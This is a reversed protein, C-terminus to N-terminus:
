GIYDQLALVASPNAQSNRARMAKVLAFAGSLTTTYPIKLRLATQRLSRSDHSAKAGEVTNIVLAVENSRMADVIHPSGQYVKNVRAVQLGAQTLAEATGDTALLTFFLPVLDRGLEGLQSKDHDRISIFVQGSQPLQNGAARQAKYFASGFDRALGMVEGTSRMEPGLLVDVGPFRDFPFVAEKVAVHNLEPAAMAKGTESKFADPLTEGAMVRAAIRAVAIGTAKAVFPVTRSARPNVELLYIEGSHVAFQVNM